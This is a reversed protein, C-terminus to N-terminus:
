VNCFSIFPTGTYIKLPSYFAPRIAMSTYTRACAPVPAARGAVCAQLGAMADVCELRHSQVQILINNNFMKGIRGM